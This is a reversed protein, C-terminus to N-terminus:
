VAYATNHYEEGAAEYTDRLAKVGKLTRTFVYTDFATRKTKINVVDGVEVYPRGQIETRHPVYPLGRIMLYLNEIATQRKSETVSEFLINDKMVYANSGTGASLVVTGESVVKDIDKTKYQEHECSIYSKIREM